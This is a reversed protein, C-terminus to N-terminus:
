SSGHDPLALRDKDVAPSPDSQSQRFVRQMRLRPPLPFQQTACAGLQVGGSWNDDLREGKEVAIGCAIHRQCPFIRYAPEGEFDKDALQAIQLARPLIEPSGVQVFQGGNIGGAKRDHLPRPYPKGVRKIIIERHDSEPHHALKQAPQRVNRHLTIARRRRRRRLGYRLLSRGWAAHELAEM